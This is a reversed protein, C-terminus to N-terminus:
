TGGSTGSRAVPRSPEHERAAQAGLMEASMSVAEAEFKSSSPWLDAHLPNAQSHLAYVRNLFEIHEAGGHYVAGSAYGREWRDAERGAMSRLEELVDDRPRGQSPIARYEPVTGAYPRLAPRMAELLAAYQKELRREVAPVKRLAREARGAVRPGVGGARDAAIQRMKAM